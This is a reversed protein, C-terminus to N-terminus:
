KLVRVEQLPVPGTIGEARFREFIHANVQYAVPYYERTPIWYRFGIILSAPGFQQIGVQPAPDSIVRDHQALIHNIVAIAKQPDVGAVTITGEWLKNAQSNVLIEGMIQKNPITIKEGDATDLITTGLNVQAVVGGVGLVSLTDGVKFPRTIMIVLGAGYNSLVGQLALGAGLSLAGIAAVFPTVSIGLKGLCIIGVGVLIVVRTTASIFRVLIEDLRHKRCIREVARGAWRAVLVGLILILIAGIIQFSYELLFALALEYLKEILHLQSGIEEQM